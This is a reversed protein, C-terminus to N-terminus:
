ASKAARQFRSVDICIVAFEGGVNGSFDFGFVADQDDAADVNRHVQGGGGLVAVRDVAHMAHVGHVAREVASQM